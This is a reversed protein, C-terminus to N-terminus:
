LYEGKRKRSLQIFVVTVPGDNTKLDQFQVRIDDLLTLIRNSYINGLNDVLIWEQNSNLDSSM